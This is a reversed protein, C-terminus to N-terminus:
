KETGPQQGEPLSALLSYIKMKGRREFRVSTVGERKLLDMALTWVRPGIDGVAACLYVKSRTEWVVDLTAIYPIRAAYGGPQDYLRLKTVLPTMELYLPEADGWKVRGCFLPNRGSDGGTRPVYHLLRTAGSRREAYMFHPFIGNRSRRCVVRGASNCGVRLLYLTVAFILCNSRTWGRSFNRLRRALANASKFILSV